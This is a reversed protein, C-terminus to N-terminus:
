AVMMTLSFSQIEEIYVLNVPTGWMRTTATDKVINADFAVRLGDKWYKADMNLPEYKKGDDGAIGFFGGELDLHTVTGSRMWPRRYEGTVKQEGQKTARLYFSHIGGGGVMQGGTQSPIYEDRSTSLGDSTSLNWSYGTTPNEQLRINFTEGLAEQVTRGTDRETYVHFRPPVGQVPCTATGCSNEGVLLTLNFLTWTDSKSEWPRGYVGSIAQVGPQVAKLFWVHTGGSGVLKGSIDDPIYTDNIISLGGPVSLMWTYGTTPNEPLRLQIETDLSISHNEGKNTQGFSNPEAPVPAQTLVPTPTFTPLPQAVPGTCGALFVAAICAIAIIPALFTRMSM